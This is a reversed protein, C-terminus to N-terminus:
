KENLWNSIKLFNEVRPYGNNEIRSLTAASIGLRKALTRLDVQGRKRKLLFGINDLTIKM